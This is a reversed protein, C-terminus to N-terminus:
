SDLPDQRLDYLEVSRRWHLFKHTGTRVGYARAITIARDHYYPLVDIHALRIANPGSCPCSAGDRCATQFLNDV